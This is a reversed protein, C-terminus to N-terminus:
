CATHYFDTICCIKRRILAICPHWNCGYKGMHNTLLQNLTSHVYSDGQYSDRTDGFLPCSYTTLTPIASLIDGNDYTMNASLLQGIYNLADLVVYICGVCCNIGINIGFFVM